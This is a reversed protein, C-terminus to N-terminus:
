NLLESFPIFRVTEGASIAHNPPNDILGDGWVTSTLVASSQNAFLDLGGAVNVRARLFENRRDAKGQTFDARLSLARPAVAQVGALRLVFPRVFLLFTVFSSVPNGPLGIFFTEAPEGGNAGGAGRRVAGFALPKGPKMAIQWMSLRGEAEVAPKVHDEEGVSVGGCTLILDHAEAAERLTARTADLQDAVIGYDTVDCGLKELLGRLTFRNSNYIAGPKLPEGPMTLEDGTFFVAVKVRRRVELRACGVSAALGLAQPTLRTGAPLIVSGARIDAGQATIWEGAQPRHVITVEDGAVETQEQMVVADAGAPVTAGTFIRAASNPALPTPAHGAPIRQSVPLRSGHALDAIRVAYGDMASTNMPPVDLPSTVDTALVRNLADLTPLTEIGDLARAADLLIALADATALM